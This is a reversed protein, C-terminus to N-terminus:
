LLVLYLILSYYKCHIRAGICEYELLSWLKRSVHRIPVGSRPHLARLTHVFLIFKFPYSSTFSHQVRKHAEKSAQL